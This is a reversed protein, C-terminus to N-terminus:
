NETQAVADAKPQPAQEGVLLQLEHLIRAPVVVLGANDLAALGAAGVLAEVQRRVGKPRGPRGTLITTVPRTM